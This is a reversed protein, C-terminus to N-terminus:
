EIESELAQVLANNYSVELNPGCTVEVLCAGPPEDRATLLHVVVGISGAPVIRGDEARLPIRLAVNAYLALAM